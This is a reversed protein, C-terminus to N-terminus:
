TPDFAASFPGLGKPVGITCEYTDRAFASEFLFLETSNMLRRELRGYLTGKFTNPPYHDRCGNLYASTDFVLVSM